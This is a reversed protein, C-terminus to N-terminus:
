RPTTGPVTPRGITIEGSKFNAITGNLGGARSNRSSAVDESNEKEIRAWESKPLCVRSPIRTNAATELKCIVKDDGTNGNPASPPVAGQAALLLVISIM